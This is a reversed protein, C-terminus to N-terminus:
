APEDASPSSVSIGTTSSFAAALEAMEQEKSKPNISKGKSNKGANYLKVNDSNGLVPIIKAAITEDISTWSDVRVAMAVTQKGHETLGCAEAAKNLKDLLSTAASSKSPSPAAGRSRPASDPFSAAEEEIEDFPDSSAWLSLGLGTHIGIEKAIARRLCNDIARIDPDVMAKHRAAMNSVPFFGPPSLVTMRQGGELNVLRTLYPRLYANRDPTYHIISGEQSDLFGYTCFSVQRHMSRVIEAWPLYDISGKKRVMSSFDVKLNEAFEQPTCIAGIVPASIAPASIAPASIAPASIAPAVPRTLISADLSM